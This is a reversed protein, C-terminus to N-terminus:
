GTRTSCPGRRLLRASSSIERAPSVDSVLTALALIGGEGRNDARLILILYKVSIVLVLSWLILSLVGLVNAPTPPIAHEGYFCERLAYLPSTGIDGYVIGLSALCLLLLRRKTGRPDGPSPAHPAADAIAPALTRAASNVTRSVNPSPM